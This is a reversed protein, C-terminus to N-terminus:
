IDPNTEEPIVTLTDPQDRSRKVKVKIPVGIKAEMIEM